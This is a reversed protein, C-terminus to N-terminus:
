LQIGVASRILDKATERGEMPGSADPIELLLPFRTAYTYQRVRHRVAAALPETILVVGMAEM